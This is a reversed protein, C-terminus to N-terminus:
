ALRTLSKRLESAVASPGDGFLRKFERSFRLASEYGVRL